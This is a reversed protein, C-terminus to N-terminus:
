ALGFRAEPCQDVRLGKRSGTGRELLRDCAQEYSVPLRPTAIGDQM